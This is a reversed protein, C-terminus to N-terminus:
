RRDLIKTVFMYLFILVLIFLTLFSLTHIEKNYTNSELIDGNLLISSVDYDFHANTYVFEAINIQYSGSFSIRHIDERSHISSNNRDNRSSSDIYIIIGESVVFNNDSIAEIENKSFVFCMDYDNDSETITHVIYQKYGANYYSNVFAKIFDSEVSTFM